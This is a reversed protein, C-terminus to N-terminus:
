SQEAKSFYNMFATLADTGENNIIPKVDKAKSTDWWKSSSFNKPLSADDGIGSKKLIVSMSMVHGTPLKLAIAKYGNKTRMAKLILPSSLRESTNSILETKPPEGNGRIEFIIPLGFAARPFSQRADHKIPHGEKETIERISDPEPWRSRGTRNGTGADRGVGVGQRFLYLKGIAKNWADIPDRASIENLECNNYDKVDDHTLPTLDEIDVSGLGRRTRAGIGGFCAWWRISLLVSQWDEDNLDDSFISLQFTYGEKILKHNEGGQIASFLAYGIGNNRNITDTANTIQQETISKANVRIFVKSSFDDQESENLETEDGMGGWIKREAEFLAEGSLPNNDRNKALFRWWYRLQGRIASARIPMQRDPEGAKVGGGYIPTIVKVQYTQSYKSKYDPIIAQSIDVNEAVNSVRYRM